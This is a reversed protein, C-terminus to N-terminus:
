IYEGAKMAVRNQHLRWRSLRDVADKKIGNRLLEDLRARSRMITSQNPHEPEAMHYNGDLVVYAIAEYARVAAGMEDETADEFEAYHKIFRGVIGEGYINKPDPNVHGVVEQWDLMFRGEEWQQVEDILFGLGSLVNHRRKGRLNPFQEVKENLTREVVAAAAAEMRERMHANPNYGVIKAPWYKGRKAGIIEYSVTDGISTDFPYEEISIKKGSRMASFVSKYFAERGNSKDFSGPVVILKRRRRHGRGGGSSIRLVTGSGRNNGSEAM